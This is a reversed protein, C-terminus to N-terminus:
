ICCITRLRVIRGMKPSIVHASSCLQQTGLAGQAYRERSLRRAALTCSARFDALFEELPLSARIRPTSLSEGLCYRVENIGVKQLSTSCSPIRTSRQRENQRTWDVRFIPFQVWDNPHASYIQLSPAFKSPSALVPVISHQQWWSRRNLLYKLALPFVIIVM